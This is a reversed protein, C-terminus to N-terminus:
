YAPGTHLNGVLDQKVRLSFSAAEVPNINVHAFYKKSFTNARDLHTHANIWGGFKKVAKEVAQDWEGYNRGPMFVEKIRLYLLVTGRFFNVFIQHYTFRSLFLVARTLATKLIM